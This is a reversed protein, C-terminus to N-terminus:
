NRLRYRDNMKKGKMVLLSSKNSVRLEDATYFKM